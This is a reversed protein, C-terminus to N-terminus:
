ARGRSSLRMTGPRRATRLRQLALREIGLAFLDGAKELRTPFTEASCVFGARLREFESWAVPACVPLGTTGRLSYPAPSYSGTANISADLKAKRRVPVRACIRELKLRIKAAPPSEPFPLWLVVGGIGDLVAIADYGAALLEARTALAIEKVGRFGHRANPEIAIRGFQLREASTALPAWTHFEIAYERQVLWGIREASLTVHTIRFRPQAHFGRPFDAFVIPSGAFSRELLAACRGYHALVRAIVAVNPGAM